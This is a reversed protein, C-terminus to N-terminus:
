SSRSHPWGRPRRAGTRGRLGASWRLGALHVGIADPDGSDSEAALDVAGLTIKARSWTSRSDEAYCTRPENPSRTAYKDVQCTAVWTPGHCAVQPERRDLLELEEWLVLAHRRQPLLGLALPEIALTGAHLGALEGVRHDREGVGLTSQDGDPDPAAGDLARARVLAQVVPPPLSAAVESARRHGRVELNHWADVFAAAGITEQDDFDLRALVNV